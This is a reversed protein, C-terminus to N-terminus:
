QWVASPHPGVPVQPDVRSTTPTVPKGWIQMCIYMCSVVEKSWVQDPLYVGFLAKTCSFILGSQFYILMFLMCATKVLTDMSLIPVVYRDPVVNVEESNWVLKGALEWHLCVRLCNARSSPTFEKPCAGDKEEAQTCRSVGWITAQSWLAVGNCYYVADRM